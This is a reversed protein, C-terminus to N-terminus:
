SPKRGNSQLRVVGVGAGRKRKIPKYRRIKKRLNGYLEVDIPEVAYAGSRILHKIVDAGLVRSGKKANCKFCSAVLNGLSSSGGESKPHVHDVTIQSRDDFCVGCYACQQRHHWIEDKITKKVNPM